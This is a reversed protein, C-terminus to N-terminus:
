ILRWVSRMVGKLDIYGYVEKKLFDANTLKFLPRIDENINAYFGINKSKKGVLAKSKTHVGAGYINAGLRFVNLSRMMNERFRWFILHGVTRKKRLAYDPDYAPYHASYKQTAINGHLFMLYASALTKPLSRSYEKVHDAALLPTKYFSHLDTKVSIMKSKQRVFLSGAM